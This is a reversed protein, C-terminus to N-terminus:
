GRDPHLAYKEKESREPEPPAARFRVVFRAGPPDADRASSFEVSGGAEEARRAVIALGLGTGGSRTTFFPQFIKERLDAPVGPGDDEVSLLTRGSDKGAGNELTVRVCGGEASAEVANVVLNSVIDGAAEEGGLVLFSDGSPEFELRVRRMEAHARALELTRRVVAALDAPRDTDRAPKAYRLIQAIKRNLRDLEEVVMRCDHRVRAPLTADEELLQVITKMSSLPNKVNHAIRASMEGLFAMKAQEALKRELQVQDAILRCLEIAAGLQDAVLQLAGLREGSFEPMAVAVDLRGLVQEGRRIPFSTVGREFIGSITEPGGAEGLQVTLRRVGLAPPGKEEVFRRLAEVDGSKQAFEQLEAAFSRVPRLESLFAKQLLRDTQRKLPEFFVVLIFIMVGETVASPLVNHGELFGGVRRVLNLYILLGFLGAVTYVLNRQVRLGLFHYRFIAHGVLLSPGIALFMLLAAGGGGLGEVPPPPLLYQWVLGGALLTQLAALTAHFRRGSDTEMRRRLERNWVAAVGQAAAMWVVLLPMFPKLAVVSDFELQGAARALIWPSAALPAYFAWVLFNEWARRPRFQAAYESHLHVVLPAALLLGTLSIVRAIATLLPPGAGYFLGVNLSLLNGSFWMFLAAFLSFLLWEIRGMRRQGLIVVMLFLHVLSGLSFAILKLGVLPTLEYATEM